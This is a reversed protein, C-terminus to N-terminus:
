AEERRAATADARDLRSVPSTVPGERNRTGISSRSDADRTSGSSMTSDTTGTTSGDGSGRPSSGSREHNAEPAQDGYGPELASGCM